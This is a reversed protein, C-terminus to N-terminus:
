VPFALSPFWIALAKMVFSDRVGDLGSFAFRLLFAAAIVLAIGQILGLLFGGFTNVTHLGPADAMHDLSRFALKLVFSLATFSLVYLLGYVIPRLIERLASALAESITGAFSKRMDEMRSQLGETLSKPLTHEEAFKAFLEALYDFRLAHFSNEDLAQEMTEESQEKAYGSILKNMNEGDMANEVASTVRAELMPAVIEVAQDSFQSAFFTAGVLSLILVALGAITKIMGRFAGVAACLATLILAGIDIIMAANEGALALTEGTM